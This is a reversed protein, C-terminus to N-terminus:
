KTNLYTIKDSKIALNSRSEFLLDELKEKTLELDNFDAIGIYTREIRQLLTQEQLFIDSITVKQGPFQVIKWCGIHCQHDDHIMLRWKEVSEYEGPYHSRCNYPIFWIETANSYKKSDVSVSNEVRYEGDCENDWYSQENARGKTDYDKLYSVIEDVSM